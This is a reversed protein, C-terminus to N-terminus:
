SKALNGEWGKNFQALLQNVLEPQEEAINKTESPDSKHDFLEIFLPAATLNGYDKWVVLRHQDTRM